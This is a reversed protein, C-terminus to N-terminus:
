RQMWLMLQNRAFRVPGLRRGYSRVPIAPDTLAQRLSQAPRAPVLDGPLLVGYSGVRAGDYGLPFPDSGALIRVGRSRAHHFAHPVPWFFPRGGNDGLFFNSAAPDELLADILAGRWGLWKGVGWAVVTLAGQATADQVTEALPRGDAVTAECALALVELREATIVQRGAIVFLARGDDATCRLSISEDTPHVSWGADLLERGGAVLRRFGPRGVPDALLLVDTHHDGRGLRHAAATFQNAAADLFRGLHYCDYVHTHADILM